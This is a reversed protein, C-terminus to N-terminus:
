IACGGDMRGGFQLLDPLRGSQNRFQLNSGCAGRLPLSNAGGWARTIASAGTYYTDGNNTTTNTTSEWPGPPVTTDLTGTIVLVPLPAKGPLDLYARHPLGILPAIARFTMASALNQSLAWTFMGGNSGRTAFVRSTDVCSNSEIM